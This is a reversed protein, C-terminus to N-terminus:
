LLGIISVLAFGARGTRWVSSRLLLDRMKECKSDSLQMDARMREHPNINENLSAGISKPGGDAKVTVLVKTVHALQLCLMTDSNIQALLVSNYGPVNRSTLNLPQNKNLDYLARLWM